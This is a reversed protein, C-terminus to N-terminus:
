KSYKLVSVGSKDLSVAFSSLFTYFVIMFSDKEAM